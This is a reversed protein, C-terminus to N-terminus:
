NTNPVFDFIVQLDSTSIFTPVSTGDLVFAAYLTTVGAAAAVLLGLNPLLATAKSNITVYDAATIAVRAVQFLDDTGYVFAVKDTITAVTPNTGFILFNGSPKTNSRDLVHISHLFSSGGAFTVANALTFKGGVSNGSAYQAATVTPNVTIGAFLGAVPAVTGPFPNM